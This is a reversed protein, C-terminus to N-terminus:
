THSFANAIALKEPFTGVWTCSKPALALNQRQQIGFGKDSFHTSFGTRKPRSQPVIFNTVSGGVVISVSLRVEFSASDAVACFFRYVPFLPHPLPCDLGQILL